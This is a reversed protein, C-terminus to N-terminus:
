ENLVLYKSSGRGIQVSPIREIFLIYPFSWVEGKRHERLKNGSPRSIQVSDRFSKHLRRIEFRRLKKRRYLRVSPPPSIPNNIQRFIVKRDTLKGTSLRWVIFTRLSISIGIGCMKRGTTAFVILRNSRMFRPITKRASRVM